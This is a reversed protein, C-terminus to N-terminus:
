AGGCSHQSDPLTWSELTRLNTVTYIRGRDDGPPCNKPIFVLCMLAHDGVKSNRIAPLSPDEQYAITIGKNKFEVHAGTKFDNDGELRAGIDTIVTGGCSLIKTPLRDNPTIAHANLCTFTLITLILKKM